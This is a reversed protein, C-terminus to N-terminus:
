INMVASALAWRKNRNQALDICDTGWGVEQLNMKIDDDWRHRPRGLPRKGEHKGVLVRCAGRSERMCAVHGAWRMRGSKIVWIIDPSLYLDNVKENHLKRWERKLKDWEPEFMRRLMRNEFVKLRHEERLILSWTECGYLVVPLTITRYMKIVYVYILPISYCKTSKSFANSEVSISATLNLIQLFSPSFM